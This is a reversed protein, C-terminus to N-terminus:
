NPHPRAPPLQMLARMSGQPPNLARLGNSLNVRHRKAWLLYDPSKATLQVDVVAHPVIGDDAGFAQALDFWDNLLAGANWTASPGDLTGPSGYGVEYPSPTMAFNSPEAPNGAADVPVTSVLANLSTTGGAFPNDWTIYVWSTIQLAGDNNDLVEYVVHGQTGTALGLSESQFSVTAGAAVTSPAPIGDTWVGHDLNQAVQQLASGLTNQFNIVFSRVAM